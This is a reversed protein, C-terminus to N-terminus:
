KEIKTLRMNAAADEENLFMGYTSLDDGYIFQGGRIRYFKGDEGIYRAKSEEVEIPKAYFPIPTIVTENNEDLSTTNISGPMPKEPDPPLELDPREGNLTVIWNKDAIARCAAYDEDTLDRIINFDISGKVTPSNITEAIHQFSATDLNCNWFMHYGDTLSSLDSSFSALNSCGNFMYDGDTLSSLDSSFSTLKSCYFFMSYGNTLSSLDNCNFSTLQYCNCFMETGNTLSSLDSTFSSLPTETFMGGGDTLCPLDIDWSELYTYGFMSNGDTLSSLDSNFSSLSTGEFMSYGDTLCPLDIDWSELSTDSFMSSGETLNPLNSDFSKLNQCQFFMNNAIELNSLDGKFGELNYCSMFMWTGNKLSSLNSNFTTLPYTKPEGQKFDYNLYLGDNTSLIDENFYDSNFGTEIRNTNFEGIVNEDADYLKNDVVRKASRFMTKTEESMDEFRILVLEEEGNTPSYRVTFYKSRPGRNITMIGEAFPLEIDTYDYNIITTKSDNVTLAKTDVFGVLKGKNFVFNGVLADGEPWPTTVGDPIQVKNQGLTGGANPWISNQLNSSM